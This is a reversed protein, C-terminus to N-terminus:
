LSQEPIIILYLEGLQKEALAKMYVATVSNKM